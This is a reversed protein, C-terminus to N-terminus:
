RVRVKSRRARAAAFDGSQLADAVVDYRGRKLKVAISWRGSKVKVRKTVRRTGTKGRRKVTVVVRGRYARTVTGSITMKRKKVKPKRVRLKALLWRPPAAFTQSRTVTRGLADIATVRLIASTARSGGNFFTAAGTLPRPAGTGSVSFVYSSSVIPVGVNTASAPVSLTGRSASSPGGFAIAPEVADISTSAEAWASINGVQDRARVRM